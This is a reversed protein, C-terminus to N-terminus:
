IDGKMILEYDFQREMILEHADDLSNAITVVTKPLYCHIYLKDLFWLVGVITVTTKPLYFSM